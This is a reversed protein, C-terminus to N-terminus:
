CVSFVYSPLYPSQVFAGFVLINIKLIMIFIKSFYKANSRLKLAVFRGYRLAKYNSM